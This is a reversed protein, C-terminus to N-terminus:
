AEPFTLQDIKMLFDIVGGGEGCGFCHFSGVSPRVNFSPSKEDHFPCLGKMSGVGASRLTVYDGIIDAINTRSKVEDIDTRRILGAMDSMRLRPTRAPRPRHVAQPHTREASSCAGGPTPAR